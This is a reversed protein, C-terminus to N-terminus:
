IIEGEKDCFIHKFKDSQLINPDYADCNSSEFWKPSQVFEYNPLYWGTDELFKATYTSLYM